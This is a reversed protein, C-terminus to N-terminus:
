IRKFNIYDFFLPILLYVTCINMFSLVPNNFGIFLFLLLPLSFRTDEMQQYAAKVLYYFLFLAYLGYMALDDIWESHNGVGLKSTQEFDTALYSVGIIPNKLFTTFSSSALDGRSSLDYADKYNGELTNRLEYLKPTVQRSAGDSIGDVFSVILPFCTLFVFVFVAAVIASKIIWNKKGYVVSIASGVISILLPTIFFSKFILYFSVVTFLAMFLIAMWKYKIGIRDYHFLSYVISPILIALSTVIDLASRFRNDSDAQITMRLGSDGMFEIMNLSLTINVVIISILVLFPIRSNNWKDVKYLDYMYIPSLVEMMSVTRAFGTAVTTAITM